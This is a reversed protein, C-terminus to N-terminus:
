TDKSSTRQVFIPLMADLERRIEQVDTSPNQAFYGSSWELFSEVNERFRIFRWNDYTIYSGVQSNAHFHAHLAEFAERTALVESLSDRRSLIAVSRAGDVGLFLDPMYFGADVRFGLSTMLRRMSENQSVPVPSLDFDYGAQEVLHIVFESCSLAPDDPDHQPDYAINETLSAHAAAALMENRQPDPLRLFELTEYRRAFSSLPVRRVRGSFRAAFNEAFTLFFLRPWSEVVWLQGHEICLVGMHDYLCFDQVSLTSGLSQPNLNKALVLDGSRLGEVARSDLDDLSRPHFSGPDDLDVRHYRASGLGKPGGDYGFREHMERAIEAEELHEVYEARELVEITEDAVVAGIPWTSCASAALVSAALATTARFARKSRHQPRVM